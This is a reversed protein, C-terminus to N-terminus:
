MQYCLGALGVVRKLDVLSIRFGILLALSGYLLPYPVLSVQVAVIRTYPPSHFYLHFRFSIDISTSLVAESM